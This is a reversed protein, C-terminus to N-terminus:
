LRLRAGAFDAVSFAFGDTGSVDEFLVPDLRDAGPDVEVGAVIVRLHKFRTVRLGLTAFNFVGSASGSALSKSYATLDARIDARAYEEPDLEILLTDFGRGGFLFSGSVNHEDFEYMGLGNGGGTSIVDADYGAVALDGCGTGTITHGQRTGFFQAMEGEGHVPIASAVDRRYGKVQALWTKFADRM